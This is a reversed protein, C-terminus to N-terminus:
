SSCFHLTNLPMTYHDACAILSQQTHQSRGCGNHCDHDKICSEVVPGSQTETCHKGPGNRMLMEVVYQRIRRYIRVTMPSVGVACRIEGKQVKSM